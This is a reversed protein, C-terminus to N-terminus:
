EREEGVGVLWIPPVMAEMISVFEPDDPFTDRSISEPEVGEVGGGGGGPLLLLVDTGLEIPMDLPAFM